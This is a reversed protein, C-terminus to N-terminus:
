RAPSSFSTARRAQEERSRRPEEFCAEGLGDCFPGAEALDAAMRYLDLAIAGCGQRELEGAKAILADFAHLDGNLLGEAGLRYLGPLSVILGSAGRADLAQRTSAVLSYVTKKANAHRADPYLLSFIREVALGEPHLALLAILALCKKRPFRIAEGDVLVVPAAFWRLRVRAGSSGAQMARPAGATAVLPFPAEQHLRTFLREALEPRGAQVFHHAFATLYLARAAPDPASLWEAPVELLHALTIGEGVEFRRAHLRIATVLLRDMEGPHRAALEMLRESRALADPAAGAIAAMGELALVLGRAILDLRDGFATEILLAEGLERAPIGGELAAQFTRIRGALEPREADLMAWGEGWTLPPPSPAADSPRLFARSRECTDSLRKRPEVFCPEPLGDLPPVAGMWAILRHFLSAAQRHGRAECERAKRALHEIEKLDVLAFPEERLRYRGRLRQIPDPAGSAKLVQRALYVAKRLAVEPEADESEPFLREVLEASSLGSPHLALLALLSLVKRRPFAVGNEGVRLSPQGILTLCLPPLVGHLGARQLLRAELHRLPEGGPAELCDMLARRAEESGAMSRAVLHYLRVRQRDNEGLPAEDIRGLAEEAEPLRGTQLMLGAWTPDLNALFRKPGALARLMELSEKAAALSGQHAQVHMLWFRAIAIRHPTVGRMDSALHTFLAHALTLQGLHLARIGFSAVFDFRASPSAHEIADGPVQLYDGLSPVRGQDLLAVNLRQVFATLLHPHVAHRVALAVLAEAHSGAEDIAALDIAVASLAYRAGFQIFAVRRDHEADLSLVAEMRSRAAETEGLRWHWLGQNYEWLARGHTSLGSADPALRMAIESAEARAVQRTLLAFLRAEIERALAAPPSLAQARRYLTIALADERDAALLDGQLMAYYPRSARIAEPVARLEQALRSAQDSHSLQAALAECHAEDESLQWLAM